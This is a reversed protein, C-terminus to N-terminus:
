PCRRFHLEQIWSSTISLVDRELKMIVVQNGSGGAEDQYFIVIGNEIEEVHYVSGATRAGEYHAWYGESDKKLSFAAPMHAEDKAKKEGVCDTSWRGLYAEPITMQSFSVTASLIIFSVVLVISKCHKNM